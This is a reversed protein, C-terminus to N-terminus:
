TQKLTSGSHKEQCLISMIQNLVGHANAVFDAFPLEDTIYVELSIPGTYNPWDLMRSLQAWDTNGRFPLLHSDEVGMNDSIHVNKLRHGWREVVMGFMEGSVHDHGSDYLFGFHSSEINELLLDLYNTPGVNEIALEVRRSEAFALLKRMKVVGAMSPQPSYKFATHMSLCPISKEACFDILAEYVDIKNRSEAEEYLEGIRHRGSHASSIRIGADQLSEVLETLRDRIPYDLYVEVSEFNAKRIADTVVIHNWRCAFCLTLCLKPM